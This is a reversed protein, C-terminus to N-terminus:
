EDRKRKGPRTRLSANQLWSWVIFYAQDRNRKQAVISKLTKKRADHKGTELDPNFSAACSSRDQHVVMYMTTGPPLPLKATLDAPLSASSSVLARSARSAESCVAPPTAIPDAPEEQDDEDEEDDMQGGLLQRCANTAADEELEDWQIEGEDAPETAKEEKKRRREEQKELMKLVEDIKAQSCERQISDMALIRKIRQTKTTNKPMRIGSAEMFSMLNAVTLKTIHESEVLWAMLSFDRSGRRLILSTGCKAALAPECLHITYGYFRVEDPKLLLKQILDRGIKLTLAPTSQGESLPDDFSEAETPIRTEDTETLPLPGKFSYPLETLQLAQFDPEDEM